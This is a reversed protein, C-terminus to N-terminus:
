AVEVVAAPPFSGGTLWHSPRLGAHRGPAREGDPADELRPRAFWGNPLQILTEAQPLRRGRESLSQRTPTVRSSKDSRTLTHTM